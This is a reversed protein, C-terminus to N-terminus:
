TTILTSQVGQKLCLSLWEDLFLNWQSKEDKQLMDTNPYDYKAHFHGLDNVRLVEAVRADSYIRIHMTPFQVLSAHTLSMLRVIMTYKTIEMVRMAYQNQGILYHYEDGIDLRTPLLATIKRYNAEYSQM